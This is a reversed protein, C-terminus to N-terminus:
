LYSAIHQILHEDLLNHDKELMIIKAAPIEKQLKRSVKERIVFDNKGFFAIIPFGSHKQHQKIKPLDPLM